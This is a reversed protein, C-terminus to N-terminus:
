LSNMFFLSNIIIFFFYFCFRFHVLSDSAQSYYAGSDQYLEPALCRTVTDISSLCAITSQPNDLQIGYCFNGLVLNILKDNQADYHIFVSEASLNNHIVAYSHLHSLANCLSILISKILSLSLSDSRQTSSSTTSTATTSSATTATSNDFPVNKPTQPSVSVNGSNDEEVPPSIISSYSSVFKRLSIGHCSYFIQTSREHQEHYYYQIINPHYPLVELLTVEFAVKKQSSFDNVHCFFEKMFCKWGSVVVTYTIMESIRSLAAVENRKVISIDGSFDIICQSTKTAKTKKLQAFRRSSSSKEILLAYFTEAHHLLNMKEFESKSSHFAINPLPFRKESITTTVITHNGGGTPIKADGLWTSLAEQINEKKKELIRNELAIQQLEENRDILKEGQKKFIFECDDPAKRLVESILLDKHLLFETGNKNVQFLQSYVYHDSKEKSMKSKIKEIIVETTTNELVPFTRYSNNPLKVRILRKPTGISDSPNSTTLELKSESEKRSIQNQLVGDRDPLAIGTSKRKQLKRRSESSDTNQTETRIKVKSEETIQNRSNTDSSSQILDSLVEEEWRFMGPSSVSRQRRRGETAVKPIEVNLNDRDTLNGAKPPLSSM